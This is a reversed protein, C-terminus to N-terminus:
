ASRSRVTIVPVSAGLIVDRATRGLFAGALLSRGHTGMVILSAGAKEARKLVGESALLSRDDVQFTVDIGQAQIRKAKQGLVKHARARLEAVLDELQRAASPMAMATQVVPHLSDRVSHFLVIQAGLRKALSIAYREARDTNPTLGTPFFITPKEELMFKKAGSQANPGITMVPTMSRRIVEETVSGLVLRGLGKRGHTNLTILEYRGRKSSLQVIEKVPDGSLFLSRCAKETRGRVGKLRAQQRALYRDMFPRYAPAWRKVHPSVDDVYVLDLASGLRRALSTGYDRTVSSRKGVEDDEAIADAILVRGSNASEMMRGKM